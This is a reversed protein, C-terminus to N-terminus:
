ANRRQLFHSPLEQAECSRKPWGKTLPLVFDGISSSVLSLERRAYGPTLANSINSSVVEAGRGAARLGSLANSLAGSITM